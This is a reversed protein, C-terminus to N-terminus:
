IKTINFVNHPVVDTFILENGKRWYHLHYDYDVDRRWALYGKHSVQENGGSKGDRLAHTDKMNINLIEECLARLLVDVKTKEKHFNLSKISKIFSEYLVFNPQNEQYIYDLEGKLQFVNICVSMRFCMDSQANIWIVAPEIKSCFEKFNIVHLFEINLFIPLDFYHISDVVSIIADFKIKPVDLDKSIVINEDERLRKKTCNLNLIVVLKKLVHVFDENRNGLVCFSDREILVDKIEVFDEVLPLKSLVSNIIKDIEEPQIYDVNFKAVLEKLGDVYPYLNHKFLIDFTETPKFVRGWNLDILKKWDILNDIFDDLQDRTLTEKDFSFIYPDMFFNM